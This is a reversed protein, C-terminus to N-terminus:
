IKSIGSDATQKSSGHRSDARQQSLASLPEPWALRAVGAAHLQAPNTPTEREATDSCWPLRPSGLWTLEKDM